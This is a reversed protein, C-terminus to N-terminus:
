KSVMVLMLLQTKYRDKYFMKLINEILYKSLM